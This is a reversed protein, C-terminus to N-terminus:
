SEEGTKLPTQEEPSEDSDKHGLCCERVFQVVIALIGATIFLYSAWDPCKEHTDYVWGRKKCFPVGLFSLIAMVFM